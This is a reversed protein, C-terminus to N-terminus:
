LQQILPQLQDQAIALSGGSYADRVGAVLADIDVEIHQQRFQNGVTAGLAYGQRQADTSLAPAAATAPAAAPTAAPASSDKAKDCGSLVIAALCASVVYRTH